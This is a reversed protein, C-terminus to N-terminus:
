EISITTMERKRIAEKIAAENKRERSMFLQKLFELTHDFEKQYSFGLGNRQSFDLSSSFEDASHTFLKFRLDGSKNIKIEIDLDGVVDGNASKSTSYKRNGVSGNVLVRNNFLQTSVAVDFIDTGVRDKQYGLGFDLPIDLKQLINNLQSSVIEGVNSAIMNTGNVVGSGEEPLFTGFLLLAVFQKQIKDQTNLASEVHMRTNPDLDPVDISFSIGPNSLKGNIHIGCEVNRRSSVSTSDAVLTALSTKVNHVANVDMTSEIVDGNFQLSSGSKIDFEKSVVGPINFLYKGKDINYDGKLQLKDKATNIDVVVIGTGGATLVHGSEKDIEVQATVEPSINVRAHATFRSSSKQQRASPGSAMEEDEDSEPQAFTLLNSTGKATSSSPLPVNVNGNGSTFVDADVSLANFPGSITGRGSLSLDGYVMIPSNDDPIDIAKLGKMRLSADMRFDKLEKFAIRGGLTGRGSYDDSVNINNFELGNDDLSMNGNLTYAVNTYSVRTRVDKLELADSRLHLKDLHGAAHVTGSVKGDLETLFDKLFPAVIGVNFGNFGATADVLKDKVGYSGSVALVTNDAYVNQLKLGISRRKDDWESRLVFDGAKKKDVVLGTLSLDAGLGMDSPVPSILTADGHIIGNIEPLKGNLFENLIDLEVNRLSVQLTDRKFPSVGGNLAISQRESALRFGNVKIEGNHMGISSKRMQWVDSKIRLYSQLTNLDISPRGNDDRMLLAQINLESGNELLDAGEYKVGLTALNDAAELKVGAKNFSLTGVKFEDSNVTCSISNDQNDLALTIGSVQLNNYKLSPSSIYGLMTGDKDIDLNVATGSAIASYPLAYALIGKTDHFIASFTADLGEAPASKSDKQLFFAPMDRDVTVSRAFATLKSFDYPGYYKADMFQSNILATLREGALKAEAEIDGIRYTGKDNALVLNEIFFHVPEQNSIGKDGYISCSVVSKGGRKDINLAELDINQLEANFQGSKDGTNFEGNLNLLANPDESDLSASLLKDIFSAELHINGYDYGLIGLKSIDMSELTIATSGGGLRGQARAAFSTNGLAESVLLRGLDFHSAGIEADLEMPRRSDVMNRVGALTRLQGIESNIDAKAQLRNMPGSATGTLKFTTGPAFRSLDMGAGLAYLADGLGKATFVLEDIRADLSTEIVEPLGKMAASVKGHPGYPTTLDFDQAAFDAVTGTFHGSRIDTVFKCDKFLGGSFWSISELVLRSPAFDVDMAVANVFDGWASSNEYSLEARPIYIDTGSSDALHVNNLTTRGLGVACSGSLETVDMGSKEEAKLHDVVAHMRGGHFGISHGSVDFRVDMDGFNIGHTRDMRTCYNLMRFRGNNVKVRNVIFISDLSVPSDEGDSVLKLVRTLNNGYTSDPEITLQFLLDEAEVRGLRIAKKNLLSGVSVTTSLKGIYAVTDVPAFGLGNIDETYPEPDLLLVNKLTLANFPHLQISGIEMKANFVSELKSTAIRALGTQVAPIQLVLLISLLLTIM